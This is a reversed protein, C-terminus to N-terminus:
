ACEQPAERRHPFSGRRDGRARQRPTPERAKDAGVGDVRTGGSWEGFSISIVRLNRTRAARTVAIARIAPEAIRLSARAFFSFGGLFAGAGAAPALGSAALGPSSLGNSSTTFSM